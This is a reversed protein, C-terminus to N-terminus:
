LAYDAVSGLRLPRDQLSGVRKKTGRKRRSGAPYECKYGRRACQNCTMDASGDMPRGCAIKRGFPGSMRESVSVDTKSTSAPSTSDAPAWGSVYNKITSIPSSVKYTRLSYLDTSPNGHVVSQATSQYTQSHKHLNSDDDSHVTRLKNPNQHLSLAYLHASESPSPTDPYQYDRNYYELHILDPSSDQLINYAPDHPTAPLPPPNAFQHFLTRTQTVTWALPADASAMAPWSPYTDTRADQITSLTTPLIFMDSLFRRDSYAHHAYYDSM